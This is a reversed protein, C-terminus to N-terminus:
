ESRPLTLKYVPISYGPLLEFTATSYMEKAKEMGFGKLKAGQNKVFNSILLKLKDDPMSTGSEILYVIRNNESIKAYDPLEYRELNDTLKEQYASYIAVGNLRTAYVTNLPKTAQYMLVTSSDPISADNQLATYTEALQRKFMREELVIYANFMSYLIFAAFAMTRSRRNLYVIHVAVISAIFPYFTMQYAGYRIEPIAAPLHIIVGLSTVLFLMRNQRWTKWMAMLFFPMLVHFSRMYGYAWISFIRTPMMSEIAKAYYTYVLNYSWEGTLTEEFTFYSVFGYIMSFGLLGFM